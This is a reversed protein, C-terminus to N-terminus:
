ANTSSAPASPDTISQTDVAPQEANADLTHSPADESSDSSSSTATSIAVGGGVVLAYRAAAALNALRDAVTQRFDAATDGSEFRVEAGATVLRGAPHPDLADMGPVLADLNDRLLACERLFEEVEDPEVYLDGDALKPLLVAGLARAQRSGWVTDRWSDYGAEGDAASPPDFLDREGDERDIFVQVALNM